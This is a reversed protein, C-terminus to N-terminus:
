IAVGISQDIIKFTKILYFSGYFRSTEPVRLFSRRDLICKMALSSVLNYTAAIKTLNSAKATSIPHNAGEAM